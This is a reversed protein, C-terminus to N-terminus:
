ALGRAVELFALHDELVTLLLASKVLLFHALDSSHDLGLTLRISALDRAHVIVVIWDLLFKWIRVLFPM